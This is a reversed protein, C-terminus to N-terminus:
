HSPRSALRIARVLIQLKLVFVEEKEYHAANHCRGLAQVLWPTNPKNMAGPKGKEILDCLKISEGDFSLELNPDLLPLHATKYKYTKTGTFDAASQKLHLDDCKGMDHLWGAVEALLLAEHNDILAQLQNSM